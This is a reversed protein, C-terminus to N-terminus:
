MIPIRLRARKVDRNSTVIEVESNTREVVNLVRVIEEADFHDIAMFYFKGDKDLIYLMDIASLLGGGSFAANQELEYLKMLFADDGCCQRKLYNKTGIVIREISSIPIEDVESKAPFFEYIIPINKEIDYPVVRNEWIKLYVTTKDIALLPIRVMNIKMIVVAMCVVVAILYVVSFWITKCILSWVAFGLGACMACVLVGIWVFQKTRDKRALSAKAVYQM